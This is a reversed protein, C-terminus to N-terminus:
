LRQPLFLRLAFIDNGLKVVAARGSHWLLEGAAVLLSGGALDARVLPLDGSRTARYRADLSAPTAPPDRREVESASQAVWWGGGDFGLYRAPASGVRFLVSSPSRAAVGWDAPPIFGLERTVCVSAGGGPTFPVVLADGSVRRHVDRLLGEADARSGFCGIRVQVWGSSAPAEIYADFGVARLRQAVGEARAQTYFSFAQLTFAGPPQARVFGAITLLIFCLCCFM